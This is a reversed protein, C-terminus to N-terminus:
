GPRFHQDGTPPHCSLCPVAGTVNQVLVCLIIHVCAYCLDRFFYGSDLMRYLLLSFPLVLNHVLNHVFHCVLTRVAAVFLFIVRRARRDERGGNDLGM